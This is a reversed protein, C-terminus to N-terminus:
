TSLTAPLAAWTCAKASLPIQKISVFAPALALALAFALVTRRRGIGAHFHLAFALSPIAFSVLIVLRVFFHVQGAFSCRCALALRALQKSQQRISFATLAALANDDVGRQIGAWGYTCRFWRIQEMQKILFHKHITLTKHLLWVWETM